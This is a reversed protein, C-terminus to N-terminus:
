GTLQHGMKLLAELIGGVRLLSVPDALGDDDEHPCQGLVHVLLIWLYVCVFSHVCEYRM